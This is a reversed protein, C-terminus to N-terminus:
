DNYLGGLLIYHWVGAVERMFHNVLQSVRTTKAPVGVAEVGCERAFLEARFLHYESSLLGIKEPRSGTNEEILDLSYRLNEWTSTAEEELWLREPDIGKAILGDYMCQAETMPEDAGKGGTLVATAEPHATLYSYAADIRNQLAVSPGDPRVKAGLVLLYEVSEEASGFSARIILAETVGVIRLGICLIVTFIAKVVKAFNPLVKGVMPIVTYFFVIGLLCLCVLGSFTYGQVAFYFFWALAGLLAMGIWPLIRQWRSTKVAVTRQAITKGATPQRDAKTRRIKRLQEDLEGAGKETKVTVVPKKKGTQAKKKGDAPTKGASAKKPQKHEEKVAM